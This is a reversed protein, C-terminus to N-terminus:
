RVKQEITPQFLRLLLEPEFLHRRRIVEEMTPQRGRLVAGVDCDELEFGELLYLWIMYCM